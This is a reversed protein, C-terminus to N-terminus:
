HVAQAQFCVQVTFVYAVLGALFAIVSAILLVLYGSRIWFQIYWPLNRRPSSSHKLSDAYTRQRELGRPFM